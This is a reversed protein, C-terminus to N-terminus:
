TLCPTTHSVITDESSGLLVREARRTSAWPKPRKPRKKPVIEPIACIRSCSIAYLLHDMWRSSRMRERKAMSKKAEVEAITCGKPNEIEVERWPVGDVFGRVGLDNDTSYFEINFEVEEFELEDVDSGAWALPASIGLILALVFVLLIAFLRKTITM